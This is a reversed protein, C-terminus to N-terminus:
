DAVRANGTMLTWHGAVPGIGLVNPGSSYNILRHGDSYWWAKEAAAHGPSGTFICEGSAGGQFGANKARMGFSKNKEVPSEHAFYGLAIMEKSHGSAAASLKEELLLPRLALVIRRQNLLEAFAKQPASAWAARANAAAVGDIIGRWEVMRGRASLFASVSDGLSLEEELDTLRIEDEASFEDPRCWAKEVHIERLAVAATDLRALATDGAGLFNKEARLYSNWAAEASAFLRDMEAHKGADKNHDTQVHARATEAAREWSTWAELAEGAPTAPGLMGHIQRALQRGHENEARELLDLYADKFGEGRARCGQYASKRVRAESSVLYSYVRALQQRTPEAPVEAAPGPEDAGRVAALGAFVALIVRRTM